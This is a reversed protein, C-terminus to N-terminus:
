VIYNALMKLSFDDLNYFLMDKGIGKDEQHIAYNAKGCFATSFYEVRCFNNRAVPKARCLLRKSFM